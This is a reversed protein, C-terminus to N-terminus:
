AGYLRALEQAYARGPAWARLAAAFRGPDVRRAELEAVLAGLARAFGPAGAAPALVELAEGACVAALLHERAAASIPRQALGARRAIERELGGFAEVWVGLVEGADALERRYHEVDAARPVVLLPSRALAARYHELVVQAKASNAPGTVLTLSM